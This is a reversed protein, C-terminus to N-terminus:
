KAAIQAIQALFLHALFYSMSEFVGYYLAMHLLKVAMDRNKSIDWGPEFTVLVIYL